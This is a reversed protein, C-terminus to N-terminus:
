LTTVTEVVEVPVSLEEAVAVPKTVAVWVPEEVAVPVPDLEAGPLVPAPALAEPLAADGEEVRFAAEDSRLYEAVVKTAAIKM